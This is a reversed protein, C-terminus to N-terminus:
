PQYSPGNTPGLQTKLVEQAMEIFDCLIPRTERPDIIDEINFAEANRFPSAIAKLRREIEERKVEPDPAAEIERRYAATTGGEIHMSGWHASPWAVRKFMGRMARDHCQGAVGYIQRIVFTIWPMKTQFTTCMMKAGARVIGERQAELGIMFGPEDALYVMPLHFTDCLQLFRIVKIGAAVDMSSGLYNPNNIMIGVPYGHVRALGTIRSRGFYPTIEFFSDRDLVHKLIAYPDYGRNRQRPM